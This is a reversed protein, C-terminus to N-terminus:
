VQNEFMQGKVLLNILFRGKLLLELLRSFQFTYTRYSLVPAFVQAREVPRKKWFSFDRFDKCDKNRDFTIMKDQDWNTKGSDDVAVEYFAIRSFPKLPPWTVRSLKSATERFMTWSYFRPEHLNNLTTPWTTRELYERMVLKEREDPERTEWRGRQFRKREAFAVARNIRPLFIAEFSGISRDFRCM